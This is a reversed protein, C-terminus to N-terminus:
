LACGRVVFEPDILTSLRLYNIIGLTHTDLHGVSLTHTTKIMQTM